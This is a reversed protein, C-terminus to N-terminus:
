GDGAISKLRIGRWCVLLRKSKRGEGRRPRYIKLAPLLKRLKRGFWVMHEYGGRPAVWECFRAYLVRQSVYYTPGLECEELVFLTVLPIKPDALPTAAPTVKPPRLRAPPPTISVLQKPSITPCGLWGLL